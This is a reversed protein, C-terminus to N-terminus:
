VLGPSSFYHCPDLRYYNLCTNIFKEFVDCLLVHTKLYLDHYEGLNKINFTDWINEAKAYDKESIDENKLSSFFKNKSPLETENFNKFSNIYEYPYVGKEKLLKLDKDEFEEFEKSLYKYDEDVLNRVLSDLSSNMLQMSYIFLLNRNIIFAMYKELGNPIVDIIVDFNNTEKMILHGDYGRLNHFIVPVKKTIKLNTNCSFHAAGRFKGSLHCHDRVKEDVLDFLKNCIWCKNSSQFIGEEKASMILNKNFYEKMINSCYEYEELMMTIFKNVCDRGRYIVIDKTFRDDICVVKYAFGCPIHNQYKKTYSINEDIIEESVGTEKLICEFDAYIKFLAPLQKFYNLFTIIGESLKVHQGGNIILCNEKHKILIDESSFCQLCRICFHKKNKNKIKNLMLRNFDKIYVYHSKKNSIYILHIVSDDNSFVNINISNKDEIKSYDKESVPFNIDSYDLTDAIKKDIKSIRSSNKDVLNLHRIHCWLFCRNDKNKTNILGKMPHKLKGTLEIFSSCFLPAYRSIIVYESNISEVVWGSGKNIWNDIRYLIEEFSKDISYEFDLNIVTKTIVNFYVSAYETDGNIIEKNLTANMTIQYKFGDM